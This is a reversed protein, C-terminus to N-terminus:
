RRRRPVYVTRGARIAEDRLEPNTALVDGAGIGFRRAISEPTDGDEARYRTTLFRRLIRRALEPAASLVGVVIVVAMLFVGAALRAVLDIGSKDGAIADYIVWAAGIATVFALMVGTARTSAPPVPQRIRPSATRAVASITSDSSAPREGDFVVARSRRRERERDRKSKRGKQEPM